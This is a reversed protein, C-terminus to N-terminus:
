VEEGDGGLPEDRTPMQRIQPILERGLLEAETRLRTMPDDDHDVRLDWLPYAERDVVTLGASRHGAADGGADQGAGLAALMRDVLTGSTSLFTECTADLVEPGVLRNGQCSLGEDVRHGCWPENADGTHAVARGDAAVIGLQRQEAGPDGALVERVAQEVQVGDGLRALADIALYPSVVGQTAAAGVRARAHVVLKGVGLAHTLAAVGLQGTDPCRVVLSFTV